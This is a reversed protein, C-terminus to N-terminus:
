VWIRIGILRLTPGSDPYNREVTLELVAAATFKYNKIPKSKSGYRM